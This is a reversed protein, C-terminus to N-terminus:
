ISHCRHSLFIRRGQREGRKKRKRRERTKRGRKREEEEGAREERKREGAVRIDRYGLWPFTLRVHSPRHALM